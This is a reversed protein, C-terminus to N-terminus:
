NKKILFQNIKEFIERANVIALSHGYFFKPLYRCEQLTTISGQKRKEELIREAFDFSICNESCNVIGDKKWCAFWLVDKSSM